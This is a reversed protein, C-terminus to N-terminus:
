GPGANAPEPPFKQAGPLRSHLALITERIHKTASKLADPSTSANEFRIPEGFIIAARNRHSFAQLMEQGRQTGEIAVPYVPVGTRIAMLAVGVHFPLMRERIAIRGEPYVGLIQGDALARLAARTSALDKGNRDVPISQITRYFWGFGKMERYEKAMMWRIVRPCVSQLMVPDLGSIHNCVLLGAGKRPVPCPTIVDLQHYIRAVVVNVAHLVRLPLTNEDPPVPIM